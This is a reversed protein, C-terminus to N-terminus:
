VIPGRATNIFYATTKMLRFEREGILAENRLKSLRQVLYCFAFSWRSTLRCHRIIRQHLQSSSNRRGQSGVESPRESDHAGSRDRAIDAVCEPVLRLREGALETEKGHPSGAGGCQQSPVQVSASPRSSAPGRGTEDSGGGGSIRPEIVGPILNGPSSLAKQFFRKAAAADRKAALLFDITQGTSDVARYLFKGEGKV